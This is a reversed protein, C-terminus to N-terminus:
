YRDTRRNTFCTLEMGTDHFRIHIHFTKKGTRCFWFWTANDSTSLFMRLKEPSETTLPIYLTKEGLKAANSLMQLAMTTKGVGATGAILITSPTKFSGLIDDLGDIGCPIDRLEDM